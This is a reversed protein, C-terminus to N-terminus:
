TPPHNNSCFDKTLGRCTLMTYSTYDEGMQGQMSAMNISLVREKISLDIKFHAVLLISVNIGVWQHTVCWMRMM